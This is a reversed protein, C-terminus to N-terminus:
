RCSLSSGACPSKCSHPFFRTTPDVNIPPPGGVARRLGFLRKPNAPASRSSGAPSDARDGPSRARGGGHRARPRGTPATAAFLHDGVRLVVDPDAAVATQRPVDAHRK